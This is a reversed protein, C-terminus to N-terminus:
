LHVIDYQLNSSTTKIGIKKIIPRPAEIQGNNIFVYPVCM